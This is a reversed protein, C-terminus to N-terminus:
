ATVPAGAAFDDLVDVLHDFDAKDVVADPKSGEGLDLVVDFASALVIKTAPSEERVLRVAETGSLGPMSVDLVVVDPKHFRALDVAHVALEAEGVTEYGAATALGDIVQRAIPDDDCIVLTPSM